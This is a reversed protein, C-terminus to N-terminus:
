YNADGNLAPARRELLIVIAASNNLCVLHYDMRSHPIADLASLM